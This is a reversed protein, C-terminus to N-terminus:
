LLYYGATFIIGCVTAIVILALIIFRATKKNKSNINRIKETSSSQSLDVYDELYDFDVSIKPQYQIPSFGATKYKNNIYKCIRHTLIYDFNEECKSIVSAALNDFDEQSRIDAFKNLDDIIPEACKCCLISNDDLQLPEGYFMYHKTLCHECYKVM